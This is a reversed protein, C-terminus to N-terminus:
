CTNPNGLTKMKELKNQLWIQSFGRTASQGCKSCCSFIPPAPFFFFSGVNSNCL